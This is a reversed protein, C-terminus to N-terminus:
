PADTRREELLQKLAAYTEPSINHEIACADGKAITKPVGLDELLDSLVSHKDLISEAVAMGQETLHVCHHRDMIIDGNEALRKLYICVTPRTVGLRDALEYGRVEGNQSLTHIMKLYDERRSMKQKM